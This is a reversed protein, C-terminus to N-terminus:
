RLPYRHGGPLRAFRRNARRFRLVAPLRTLTLRLPDWGSL